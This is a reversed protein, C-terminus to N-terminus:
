SRKGYHSLWRDLEEPKDFDETEDFIETFNGTNRHKYFDKGQIRSYLDWSWLRPIEGRKRQQWMEELTAMLRPTGKLAFMEGYHKTGSTKTRGYFETDGSLIADLAADTFYVDGFLYLDFGHDKIGYICGLDNGTLENIIKTAGPLELANGTGLSLSVDREGREALQRIVRALINEGEIMISTRDWKKGGAALIVIKM